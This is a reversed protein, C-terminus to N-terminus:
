ETIVFILKLFMLSNWDRFDIQTNKSFRNLRYLLSNRHLFLEEATLTLNGNASLFAKITERDEENITLAFKQCDKKIELKQFNKIFYEFITYVQNKYEDLYKFFIEDFNPVILCSLSAGIELTYFLLYKKLKLEFSEDDEVILKLVNGNWITHVNKFTEELLSNVIEKYKIHNIKIIAKYIM